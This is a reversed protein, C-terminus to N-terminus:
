NGENTKYEIKMKPNINKLPLNNHEQGLPCHGRHSNNTSNETAVLDDESSTTETDTSPQRCNHSHPINLAEQDINLNQVQLASVQNSNSNKTHSSSSWCKHAM